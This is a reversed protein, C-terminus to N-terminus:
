NLWIRGWTRQGLETNIREITWTLMELRDRQAPTLPDRQAHLRVVEQHVQSKREHLSDLSMFAFEAPM